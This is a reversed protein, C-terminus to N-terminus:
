RRVTYRSGPPFPGEHVTREGTPWRVDIRAVAEADGLGFVAVPEDFSLFGGSAQVERMQRTGDSLTVTVVAGIAFPNRGTGDHLAVQVARGGTGNRFLDVPGLTNPVVLDLDGDRDYDVGTWALADLWSRVGAAETVDEFQGGARNRFLLSQDARPDIPTGNVVFLDQWGDLDFDAFRANWTWGTRELGLDGALDTYRGGQRQLLANRNRRKPALFTAKEAESYTPVPEDYAECLQAHFPWRGGAVVADCGLRQDQGGIRQVTAVTAVCGERLDADEIEGCLSPQQKRAAVGMIDIAEENSVCRAREAQPRDACIDQASLRPSIERTQAIQAVFLEPSLDNDLDATTVSMTTLGMVEFLDSSRDIRELGGAGDGLYVEDPAQFDNGVILDLDDDGDLDSLLISLTEGPIGDLARLTYAGRAGDSLLVANQAGPLSAFSPRSPIDPNIAMVNGLVLDLDGDRDLDGFGVATTRYAGPLNPLRRHAAATFAGGDNYVVHNGGGMTAVYLDLAGDGDLDVLAVSSAYLSDLAPVAVEQRVFREGGVNAYLSVGAESTFALDPWGDGHVDGSAAGRNTGFGVLGRVASANDAEAFGTEPGDLRRFTLAPAGADRSQLPTRTVGEADGVPPLATPRLLALVRAAPVAETPFEPRGERLGEPAGLATLLAQTEYAELKPEVIAATWGAGLGLAAVGLFLGLAAPKSMTNWIQLLPYASFLGLTVFLVAVYPLPVGAATLIACVIVDFAIPVPLFTGLVAVAGLALVTRTTARRTDIEPLADAFLDWPLFTVAVAGLAGALLMLPVTTKVIYWLNRGLARATWVVAAGWGAPAVDYGVADAYAPATPLEPGLTPGVPALDAALAAEGADTVPGAAGWLFRVLLPVALVIFALTLGLKLGALWFPFLAFTMSLVVVNLTPSSLLAAVTTEGRAGGAHLGEAIPVACNVCVGLPAGMAVGLLTNAMRGRFQRRTVLPLVTLILAAFLVGFTMGQKNTYAWNLANAGIRLAAPADADVAVVRDFALGEIDASGGMLAKTDLAPYRSGTWFAVALLALLLSALVLRKDVSRRPGPLAPALSM